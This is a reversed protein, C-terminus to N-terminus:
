RWRFVKLALAFSVAACGALLGLQRAIAGVGGGGRQRGGSACRQPGHAAAGEGRASARRPLESASFFVGSGVFMPMMVLNMLGGVTQTNEARSAVLLGIGAFTLAGLLSVAMVLAFSGPWASVSCSGDSGSSCPSRSSYSSGGAHRRLLAPLRHSADADRAPAEGAEEHADRRHPVRHGVHQEVHADHRPTGPILFDIYRAGVETVREDSVRTPDTRGDARQLRDNVLMRALRSEPRSEDYRYTVPDGPLVVLAVKGARLDVHASPEDEVSARVEASDLGARLREADPGALVAVHVADPPRNRFAIGLAVALIM